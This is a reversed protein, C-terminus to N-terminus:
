MGIISYLLATDMAVFYFGIERSEPTLVFSQNYDRLGPHVRVQVTLRSDSEQPCCVMQLILSQFDSLRIKQKLLPCPRLSSLAQKQYTGKRLINNQPDDAGRSM